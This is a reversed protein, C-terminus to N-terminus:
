PTGQVGQTLGETITKAREQRLLMNKVETENTLDVRTNGSSFIPGPIRYSYQYSEAPKAGFSQFDTVSNRVKVNLQYYQSIMRAAETSDAAGDRLASIVMGTTPSTPQGVFPQLIKGIKTQAISPALTAVTTPTVEYYPNVDTAQTPNNKLIAYRENVAQKLMAQQQEKPLGAIKTKFENSASLQEVFGKMDTIMKRTQPSTNPGPQIGKAAADRMNFFADGPTSGTFGLAQGFIYERQTDPMGKYRSLTLTGPPYGMRTEALKLMGIIQQNDQMKTMLDVIRLKAEADSAAKSVATVGARWEQESQQQALAVAGHEASNAAAAEAFKIGAFASNQRALDQDAKATAETAKAAIINNGAAAQAATISPLAKSRAEAAANAASITENIDGQISATAEKLGAAKSDLIQTQKVGAEVTDNMQPITFIGELWRIPDDLFSVSSEERLKAADQAVSEKLNTNAREVMLYEDNIKHFQGIKESIRDNTGDLGFEFNLKSQIDAIKQAKAQDAINKEMGGAAEAQMGQKEQATAKGYATRQEDIDRSDGSYLHQIQSLTDMYKATDASKFGPVSKSAANGVADIAVQLQRMIQEDGINSAQATGGTFNVPSQGFGGILSAIDTETGPPPLPTGDDEKDPVFNLMDPM